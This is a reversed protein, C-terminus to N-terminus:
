PEMRISGTNMIRPWLAAVAAQMITILTDVQVAQVVVLDQRVRVLVAQHHQHDKGLVRFQTFVVAVAVLMYFMQLASIPPVALVAMQHIVLDVEVVLALALGLLLALSLVLVLALVLAPALMM